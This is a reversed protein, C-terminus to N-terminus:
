DPVVFVDQKVGQKLLNKFMEIEFQDIQSRFDKVFTYQELYEDRFASYFNALRNLAEMRTRIYVKIKELPDKTSDIATNIEKEMIRFEAFVVAQFVEEKSNFYHYLSSKGKHAAQAIEDMTAKKFGYRAFVSRAANIITDRIDKLEEM